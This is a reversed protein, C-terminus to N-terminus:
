AISRLLGLRWKFSEALKRFLHYACRLGLDVLARLVPLFRSFAVFALRSVFLRLRGTVALWLISALDTLYIIIAAAAENTM